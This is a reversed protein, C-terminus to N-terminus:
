RQGQVEPGLQSELPSPFSSPRNLNNADYDKDDLAIQLIDDSNRYASVSHGSARVAGRPFTSFDFPLGHSGSFVHKGGSKTCLM